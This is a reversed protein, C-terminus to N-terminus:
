VHTQLSSQPVHRTSCYHRACLGCTDNLASSSSSLRQDTVHTFVGHATNNNTHRWRRDYHYNLIRCDSPNYSVQVTQNDIFYIRILLLTFCVTPPNVYSLNENLSADKYFIELMIKSNFAVTMSIAWEHECIGLLLVPTFTRHKQAHRVCCAFVTHGCLGKPSKFFQPACVFQALWM